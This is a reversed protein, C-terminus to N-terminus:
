RLVSSRMHPLTVTTLAKSGPRGPTKGENLKTGGAVTIGVMLVLLQGKIMQAENKMMQHPQADTNLVLLYLILTCNIM